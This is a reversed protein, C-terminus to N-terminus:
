GTILCSCHHYMYVYLEARYIHRKSMVIFSYMFTSPPPPHNISFSQCPLVVINKYACRTYLGSVKGTPSGTQSSGAHHMQSSGRSPMVPAGSFSARPDHTGSFMNGAVSGSMSGTLSAGTNSGSGALGANSLAYQSLISCLFFCALM